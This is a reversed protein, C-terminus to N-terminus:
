AENDNGEEHSHDFVNANRMMTREPEGVHTIEYVLGDETDHKIVRFRKGALKAKRSVLTRVHSESFEGESPMLAFSKNVPCAEFREQILAWLVSAAFQPSNSKGSPEFFNNTM